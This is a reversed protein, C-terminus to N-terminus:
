LGLRRQVARRFSPALQRVNTMFSPVVHARLLFLEPHVCDLFALDSVEALGAAKLRDHPASGTRVYLFTNQRYWFPIRDDGWVRPRFLDYARYHRNQFLAGWFSHPRENIHTPGNQKVFAAGFLIADSAEALSNVFTESSAPELHEAVEVSMALQFRRDMSLPKNLDVERFQIHQDIMASQNNWYGDLGVLEQAGLEHWAQLWAGRGCGVDVVSQPQLYQWLLPLMIRASRLSPAIQDKYYDEDYHSEISM